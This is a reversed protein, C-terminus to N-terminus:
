DKLKIWMVFVYQCCKKTVHQLKKRWSLFFNARTIEEILKSQITKIGIIEILENQSFPSLYAATKTLLTNLHEELIPNYLVIQQLFMFVNGPNESNSSIGSMDERHGKLALGQKGLLHIVPAIAQM